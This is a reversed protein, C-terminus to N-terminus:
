ACPSAPAQLRCARRRRSARPSSTRLLRRLEDLEGLAAPEHVARVEVDAEIGDDLLRALPDDRALEALHPVDVAPVQLVPERRGVSQFQRSSGSRPPSRRATPSMPECQSSRACNTVPARMASTKASRAVVIGTRRRGTPSTSVKELAASTSRTSVGIAVSSMACMRTRNSPPARPDHTSECTLKPRLFANRM